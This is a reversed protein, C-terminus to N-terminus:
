GSSSNIFCASHKMAEFAQRGLFGRTEPTLPVHVTVFDSEALLQDIPVLLAGTEIVAPSDVPVFEDYALLRMGFARARAAVLQGIRGFGIIGLTKGYLEGGTFRQRDWGGSRTDAIAATLDRVLSLMLGIVLEAVSVSNEAPTYSVVVGLEEAAVTDINDLGAGARGVIKLHPAAALLERTVQTQNRVIIARAASAADILRQGSNWLEPDFLVDHSTKLQDIAAGRIGETILIDPM